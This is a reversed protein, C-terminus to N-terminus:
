GKKGVAENRSFDPPRNGSALQSLRGASKGRKNGKRIRVYLDEFVQGYRSTAASVAAVERQRKGANSMLGQQRSAPLQM